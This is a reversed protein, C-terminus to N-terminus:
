LALARLGQAILVLGGLVVVADLVRLHAGESLTGVLRKALFVGPTAAAGILVAMLWSALPLAGAAQFVGVKVLGLVLSIGADTAIVAAGNLGAALLISLLVVGTGATGGMLLGFGAGAVALGSGSLHGKVRALWHRTPIALMLVTGIVVSVGAGSLRTYGYAGLAATPLAAAVILAARRPDFARCFAILRSTNSLMASVAIVPVVAEAGIIPLLIPPMLLGPGYGTVGGAVGAVFAVAAVLLYHWLSVDGLM